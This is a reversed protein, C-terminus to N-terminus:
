GMGLGEEAKTVGLEESITDVGTAKEAEDSAAAVGTEEEVGSVTAGAEQITGDPAAANAVGAGFGVLGATVALAGALRGLPIRKDM